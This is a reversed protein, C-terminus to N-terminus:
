IVDAFHIKLKSFIRSGLFLVGIVFVWFAITQYTNDWFWKRSILASRYGQVIYCLPNLLFIFRWKEPIIDLNWMIPTMWMAVQLIVIIIQSLDRFFVVLASTAYVIGIVLAILCISYYILQMWELSPLIGNIMFMVTMFAVFFVHVFLASLIRILPVIEVDFVVKKVLYGYDLLSVTASNLAENFFFWPVLGATLWLVFPVGETSGSRFGVQFVFWYVLITVIPQILAWIIGLYSGAYKTKFDNKALDVVLGRNEIMARIKKSIRRRFLFVFFVGVDLAACFSIKRKFSEAAVHTRVIEDFNMKRVDLVFFPDNGMSEIILGNDGQQVEIMNESICVDRFEELLSKREKEYFLMMKHIQIKGANEGLDVRLYKASAPFNFDLDQKESATYVKSQSQSEIFQETDSYFTQMAISLESEVQLNLGYSADYDVTIVRFFFLHILLLLLLMCLDFLIKKM